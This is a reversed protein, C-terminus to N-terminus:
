GEGTAAGVITKMDALVADDISTGSIAFYSEINAIADAARQDEASLAARRTESALAFLRTQLAHEAELEAALIKQRVPEAAGASVPAPDHKLSRRLARLRGVVRRHWQSAIALASRLLPDDARGYGAAGLWCCFLILNVDARYQDQLRLCAAEVGRTGYVRLSFRWLAHDAHDTM